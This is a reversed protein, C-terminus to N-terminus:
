QSFFAEIYINRNFPLSSALKQQPNYLYPQSQAQGGDLSFFWYQVQVVRDDHTPNLRAIALELM